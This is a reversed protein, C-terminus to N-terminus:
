VLVPSIYDVVFVYVNNYDSGGVVPMAKLGYVGTLGAFVDIAFFGEAVAFGGM